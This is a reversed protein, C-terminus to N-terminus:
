LLRSYELGAIAPDSHGHAEGAQQVMSSLHQDRNREEASTLSLIRAECNAIFNTPPFFFLAMTTSGYIHAM